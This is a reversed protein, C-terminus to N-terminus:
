HSAPPQQGGPPGDHHEHDHDPPPVFAPPDLHGRHCTGCSVQKASAENDHKSEVKSTYDKNISMTMKLMLRATQKEPKSDDAFNLAPHGNPMKRTPDEAHCTNCEVGLQGAWKHMIDHVQDGTLTKPLVKLNKPPPAPQHPHQAGPAHEAHEPEQGIASVTFLALGLLAAAAAPRSLSVPRM